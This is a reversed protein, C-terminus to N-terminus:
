VCVCVCWVCVVCVCVCLVVYLKHSFHHNRFICSTCDAVADKADRIASLVYLGQRLGLGSDSATDSQMLGWKDCTCHAAFNLGSPVFWSIISCLSVCLVCSCTLGRVTVMYRYSTVVMWSASARRTSYWYGASLVPVESDGGVTWRNACSTAPWYRIAWDV